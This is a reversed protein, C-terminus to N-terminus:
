RVQFLPSLHLASQHYTIAEVVDETLWAVRSTREEALCSSLRMRKGTNHIENASRPYCPSPTCLNRRTPSRLRPGLRKSSAKFSELRMIGHSSIRSCELSTIGDELIGFLMGQFTTRSNCHFLTSMGFNYINRSNIPRGLQTDLTVKTGDM